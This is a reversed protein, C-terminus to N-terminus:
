LCRKLLLFCYLYNMSNYLYELMKIIFIKIIELSGLEHLIYCFFIKRVEFCVNRHEGFNQYVRRLLTQRATVEMQSEGHYHHPLALPLAHYVESINSQSFSFFDVSRYVFLPPSNRLCHFYLQFLNISKSFSYIWQPTGVLFKNFNYGYKNRQIWLSPVSFYM